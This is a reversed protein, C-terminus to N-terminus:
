IKRFVFFYICGLEKLPLIRELSLSLKERISLPAFDGWRPKLFVLASDFHEIQLSNRQFEDIVEEKKFLRMRIRHKQIGVWREKPKSKKLKEWFSYGNDFVSAVSIIVRGNPKLVRNMEKLTRNLDCINLTAFMMIATEFSEDKLPMRISDGIVLKKVGKRRAIKLMGKSIDIGIGKNIRELHYGTGCGVDLIQGSTFKKLLRIEKERIIKTTPNDQRCDYMEALKDYTKGVQM